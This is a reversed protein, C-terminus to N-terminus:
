TTIISKTGGVLFVTSGKLKTSKIVGLIELSKIIRRLKSSSRYTFQESWKKYSNYIWKGDLNDINRGCKSIWYELQNLLISENQGIITAIIPNIIHLYNSNSM